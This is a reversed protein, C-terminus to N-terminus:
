NTTNEERENTNEMSTLFKNFVGMELLRGYIWNPDIDSQEPALVFYPALRHKPNCGQIIRVHEPELMECVNIYNSYAFSLLEEKLYNKGFDDRCMEGLAATWKLSARRLFVFFNPDKIIYPKDKYFTILPDHAVQIFKFDKIKSYYFSNLKAVPNYKKNRKAM